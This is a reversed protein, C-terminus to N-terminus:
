HISCESYTCVIGHISIHASITLSFKFIQRSKPWIKRVFSSEAFLLGLVFWQDSKEDGMISRHCLSMDTYLEQFAISSSRLNRLDLNLQPVVM